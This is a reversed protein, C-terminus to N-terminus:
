VLELQGTSRPRGTRGCSNEFNWALDLMRMRRGETRRDSIADDRAATGLPARPARSADSTRGIGTEDGTTAFAFVAAAAQFMDETPVISAFTNSSASFAASQATREPSTVCGDVSVTM